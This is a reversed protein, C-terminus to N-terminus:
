RGKKWGQERIYDDVVNSMHTSLNREDYRNGVHDVTRILFEHDCKPCRVKPCTKVAMPCGRCAFTRAYTLSFEFNCQPCKFKRLSSVTQESFGHDKMARLYNPDLKSM